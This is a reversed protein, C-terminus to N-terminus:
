ASPNRAGSPLHGEVFAHAADSDEFLSLWLFLKRGGGTLWYARGNRSVAAVETWALYRRGRLTMQSVGEDTIQTTLTRLLGM